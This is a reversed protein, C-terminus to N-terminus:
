LATAEIVAKIAEIATIATRRDPISLRNINHRVIM